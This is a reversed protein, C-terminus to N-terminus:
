VTVNAGGGVCQFLLVNASVAIRYHFKSNSLVVDLCM